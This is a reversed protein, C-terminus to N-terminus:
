RRGEYRRRLVMRDIHKDTIGKAAIMATAAKLETAWIKRELLDLKRRLALFQDSDLHSVAAMIQEVTSM